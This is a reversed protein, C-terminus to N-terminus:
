MKPVKKVKHSRQPLTTTGKSVKQCNKTSKTSKPLKQFKKDHKQLKHFKKDSTHKTWNKGGEAVKQIKKAIIPVKKNNVNKASKPMKRCKKARM